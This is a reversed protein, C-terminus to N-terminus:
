GMWSRAVAAGVGLAVLAGAMGVWPGMGRRVREAWLAAVLGAFAWASVLMGGVGSRPLFWLTVKKASAPVKVALRGEDSFVEGVDSKWGPHWNQNVVLTADRTLSLAVDIRNPSWATRTATGAGPELIFEEAPLDGRLKRSMPVPYAEGCSLSGRNLALLHGAVWRNGRSQAFPQDIAEPPAVLETRLTLVGFNAAQVGWGLVGAVAATAALQPWRGGRRARWLLMGMGLAGVEALLVTGPLVFRYPYRLTGFLPLERMAGFASFPYAYGTAIWVTVAFAIAPVIARRSFVAGAGLLLIAYGVFLISTTGADGGPLPAPAFLMRLVEPLGHSPAGAMVRTASGLTEVLPWLRFACAGVSLLAGALLVPLGAKWRRRGRRSLLSRGAELVVLLASLPVPYTGGFGIMVAFGAVVVAAGALRGRAALATGFAVWPMLLFGFFQVWSLTACIAYYGCLGFVPGVLAPGLASGSRLRAYRYMGEMGLLLFLALLLPEARRAGFLLTFLFTPSAFRTQPSGLAYMGGCHYPDWFPVQGYEVVTQRAVEEYPVLLHADRFDNMGGAQGLAIWTAALTVVAYAGLRVPTARAWRRLVFLLRKPREPPSM